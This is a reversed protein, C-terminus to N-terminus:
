RMAGSRRARRRGVFLAGGAGLLGISLVALPEVGVQDHSDSVAPTSPEGEARVMPVDVQASAEGSTAGSTGLPVATLLLGALGLGTFSLALPRTVTDRGTGIADVVRRWWV